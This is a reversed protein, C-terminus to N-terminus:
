HIAGLVTIIEKKSEWKPMGSSEPECHLDSSATNKRM